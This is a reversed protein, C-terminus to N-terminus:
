QESESTASGTSEAYARGLRIPLADSRLAHCADVISPALTLGSATWEGSARTEATYPVKNNMLLYFWMTRAEGLGLLLTTVHTCGSIGGLRELVIRRWGSLLSEGILARCSPLIAPCLTYPHTVARVDLDTIILNPGTLRAEVVFDHITVEDGDAGHDGHSSVDTLRATLLYEDPGAVVLPTSKTRTVARAADNM